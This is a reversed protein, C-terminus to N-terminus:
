DLENRVVKKSKNSKKTDKKVRKVVFDELDYSFKEGDTFFPMSGIGHNFVAEHILNKGEDTVFSVKRVNLHKDFILKKIKKGRDGCLACDQYVCIIEKSM